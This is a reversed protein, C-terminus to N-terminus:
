SAAAAAAQQQELALAAESAEHEALAREVFDDDDELFADYHSYVLYSLMAGLLGVVLQQVSGPFFVALISSLFLRRALEFVPFLYCRPEYEEWLFELGAISDYHTKRQEVKEVERMAREYRRGALGFDGSIEVERAQVRPNLKTSHKFLLMAIAATAGVPWIFIQFAVYGRWRRYATSTCKVALESAMVWLDSRAGGRDFGRDFHRCSFYTIVSTSVSPLVIFIFLLTFYM